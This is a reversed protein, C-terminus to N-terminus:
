AISFCDPQSQVRVTMGFESLFCVGFRSGFDDFGSPSMV